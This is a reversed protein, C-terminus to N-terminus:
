CDKIEVAPNLSKVTYILEYLGTMQCILWMTGGTYKITLYGPRLFMGQIATIERIPVSMTGLIRRFELTQDDLVRIEMPFRLYSLWLVVLVGCWLLLLHPPLPMKARMTGLGASFLYISILSLVLMLGVSFFLYAKSLKYSEYTRM